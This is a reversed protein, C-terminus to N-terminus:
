LSNLLDQCLETYVVNFNKETVFECVAKADETKREKNYSYALLYELEIIYVRKKITPIVEKALEIAKSYRKDLVNMHVNFVDDHLNVNKFVNDTVAQNYIGSFLAQNEDNFAVKLQYATDIFKLHVDKLHDQDTIGQYIAKAEDYNGKHILGYAKLLRQKNPKNNMREAQDLLKDADCLVELYDAPNKSRLLGYIIFIAAISLLIILVITRDEILTIMLYYFGFGLLVQVIFKITQRNM